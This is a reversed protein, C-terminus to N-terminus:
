HRFDPNLIAPIDAGTEKTWKKLEDYLEIAKEPYSQAINHEESIDNALNYLEYKEYEYFYILKWDGKMIASAPVARWNMIDTGYIPLIIDGTFGKNPPVGPIYFPYHWFISRECMDNNTKLLEAFSIGDVAQNKPLKAGSLEAFTPLMDVGTIPYDTKTGPTIKNPWVATGLTRIGGEYIAGKAGKLPLNNTYNALGGNDSVVMFLTNEELGLGRLKYRLQGICNDVVEIMAAYTPSWKISKDLRKEWKKKYKAVVEKKAALPKHVDWPAFYLFFTTDRNREMFDCASETMRDTALPDNYYKEDNKNIGDSTWEDFGQKDPGLHWKGIKSTVYGVTKLVEAISSVSPDLADRSDLVYEDDERDKAPVFFRMDAPNGKAETGPTYIKTRPVYMGSMICSRSPSCNPGGPYFRNFIIGDTAVADINPTEYFGAAGGNYGVDAWAMDDILIFVINPKDENDKCAFCSSVFTVALIILLVINKILV